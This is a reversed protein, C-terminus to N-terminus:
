RDGRDGRVGDPAPRGAAVHAPDTRRLVLGMLALMKLVTIGQGIGSALGPDGGSLVAVLLGSIMIAFVVRM